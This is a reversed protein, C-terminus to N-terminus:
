TVQMIDKQLGTEYFKINFALEHLIRKYIGSSVPKIHVCFNLEKNGASIVVHSNTQPYDAVCPHFQVYGYHKLTRSLRLFQFM